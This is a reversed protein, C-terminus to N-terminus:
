ISNLIPCVVRISIMVSKPSPWGIVSLEQCSENLKNGINEQSGQIYGKRYGQQNKQEIGLASQGMRFEERKEQVQETVVTRQDCEQQQKTETDDLEEGVLFYGDTEESWRGQNKGQSRRCQDGGQNM